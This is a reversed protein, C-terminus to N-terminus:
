LNFNDFDLSAVSFFSDQAKSSVNVVRLDSAAKLLNWLKATLYFHGLHNVGMQMEFGDLTVKRKPIMMVGANNVLYNVQNYRSYIQEVFEDISKKSALDLPIQFM